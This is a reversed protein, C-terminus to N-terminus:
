EFFNESNVPPPITKKTKKKKKESERLRLLPPSGDSYCQAPRPSQIHATPHSAHAQRLRSPPTKPEPGNQLM